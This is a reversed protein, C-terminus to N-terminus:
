DSLLGLQQDLHFRCSLLQLPKSPREVTQRKMRREHRRWRGRLAREIVHKCSRMYSQRCAMCHCPWGLLFPNPKLGAHEACMCICPWAMVLILHISGRLAAGAWAARSGCARVAAQQPWDRGCQAALWRGRSCPQFSNSEM